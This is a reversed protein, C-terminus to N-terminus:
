HTRANSHTQQGIYSKTSPPSTPPSAPQTQSPESLTLTMGNDAASQPAKAPVFTTATTSRQFAVWYTGPGLVPAGTTDLHHSNTARTLGQAILADQKARSRWTSTVRAGPVAALVRDAPAMPPKPAIGLIEDASAM